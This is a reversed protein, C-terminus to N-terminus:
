SCEEELISYIKHSLALRRSPDGNDEIFWQASIITRLFIWAILRYFDINLMNALLVIRSKIIECSLNGVNEFEQETLLDFAAAEFAMEGIVGKPDIALWTDNHQIINELHLDGHCLYAEPISSLLTDRLDKSKKIYNVPVRADNVTDIVSCWASVHTYDNTASLPKSM